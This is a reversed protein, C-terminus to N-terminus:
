MIAKVCRIFQYAGLPQQLPETAHRRLWRHYPRVLSPHPVWRGTLKRWVLHPVSAYHAADFARHARPSFYQHHEVVVLGVAALRRDWEAHDYVHHHFSIRNFFSGYRGAARQLHVARLLTSGLLLEAFHESPLTTAFTGGPRLVRALEALVAENDEIHELACNSLVTGFAGDAFPLATASARAVNRYVEPGRRAAELLEVRRIDIGVDIPAGYAISAFHGDGCGIDLVPAAPDARKLVPWMLDGEVARLVARHPAMTALQGALQDIPRDAVQPESM